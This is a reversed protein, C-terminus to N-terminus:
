ASECAIGDNDRDLGKNNKMPQPKKIPPPGICACMPAVGVPPSLVVYYVPPRAGFSLGM